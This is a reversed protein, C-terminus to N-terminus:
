YRHVRLMYCDFRAISDVETWGIPSVLLYHWSQASESAEDCLAQIPLGLSGFATTSPEEPRRSM